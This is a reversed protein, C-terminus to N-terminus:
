RILEKISLSSTKYKTQSKYNDHTIPLDLNGPRDNSFYTVRDSKIGRLRSWMEKYCKSGRSMWRMGIYTKPLCKFTFIHFFLVYSFKSTSQSVICWLFILCVACLFFVYFYLFCFALISSITHARLHLFFMKM